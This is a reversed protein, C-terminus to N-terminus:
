FHIFSLDDHLGILAESSTVVGQPMNVPHSAAAVRKEEVGCSRSVFLTWM